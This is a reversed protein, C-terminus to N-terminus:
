CDETVLTVTCNPTAFSDYIVYCGESTPGGAGRIDYGVRTYRNDIDTELNGIDLYDFMTLGDGMEAISEPCLNNFMVEARGLNTDIIFESQGAGPNTAVPAIGQVRAQSQVLVIATRMAGAVGELSAIRAARSLDTLKPIAIAALVGLIVISVTLEILTFGQSGEPQTSVCDRIRYTSHNM